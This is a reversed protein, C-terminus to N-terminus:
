SEWGWGGDRCAFCRLCPLCALDLRPLALYVGVASLVMAMVVVVV